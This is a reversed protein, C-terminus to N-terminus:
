ARSSPTRPKKASQLSPGNKKARQGDSEERHGEGAQQGQSSRRSGWRSAGSAVRYGLRTTVDKTYETAPSLVRATTPQASRRGVCPSGQPDKRLRTRPWHRGPSTPTRAHAHLAFEWRQQRQPLSRGAHTRAPEFLREPHGGSAKDGIRIAHVGPKGRKTSAEAVPVYICPIGRRQCNACTSRGDCKLKRGRCFQCAMPTRRPVKPKTAAHQGEREGDSYTGNMGQSSSM